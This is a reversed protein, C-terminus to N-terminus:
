LSCLLAGTNNSVQCRNCQERWGFNKNRCDANPCVWDPAKGTRVPGGAGGTPYGGGGGASYAGGGGANEAACM